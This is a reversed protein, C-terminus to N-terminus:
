KDGDAFSTYVGSSTDSAAAYRFKARLAKLPLYTGAAIGAYTEKFIFASARRCVETGNPAEGDVQGLATRATALVKNYAETAQNWEYTVSATFKVHLLKSGALTANSAAGDRITRVKFSSGGVVQWGATKRETVKALATYEYTYGTGARKKRMYIAKVNDAGFAISNTPAGVLANLDYQGHDAEAPGRLTAGMDVTSNPSDVGTKNSAM